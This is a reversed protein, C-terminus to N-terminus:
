KFSESIRILLFAVIGILVWEILLTQGDIRYNHVPDGIFRWETWSRPGRSGIFPPFIISIGITVLAAVYIWKRSFIAKISKPNPEERSNTTPSEEAAIPADERSDGIFPENRDEFLEFLSHETETPERDGDLGLKRFAWIAGICILPHWIISSVTRTAAELASFTDPFMLHMAYNSLLASAMGVIIALPILAIWSSVKRSLFYAGILDLAIAIM